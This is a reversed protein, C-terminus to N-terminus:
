LVLMLTEIDDEDEDYDVRAIEVIEPQRGMMKDFAAQVVAELAADKKPKLKKRSYIEVREPRDDGGQKANLSDQTVTPAYGTLTLLGVDPTLSPSSAAQTVTPAYGTLALNGAGPVLAQNATQTLTPAYGTLAISGFAPSIAQPQAVTPAYGTLAISGVNPAIAQPQAITPAYGTLAISGADPNIATGTAAQTVAPAYGTIAISGVGPAIAQPQALTPAYGTLALSGVDPNIATGTASSPLSYSRTAPAFLQWPNASIIKVEAASLARNWFLGLTPRTNQQTLSGNLSGFILARHNAADYVYTPPTYAASNVFAGDYYTTATTGDATLMTIRPTLTSLGTTSPGYSYTGIKTEPGNFTGGNLGCEWHPASSGNGRFFTQNSNEAVTQSTYTLASLVALDFKAGLDAATVPAPYEYAGGSVAVGTYRPAVAFTGIKNLQVGDVINIPSAPLFAGLLGRALPNGWDIRVPGQPQRTWPKRFLLSM